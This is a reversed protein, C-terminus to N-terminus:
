ETILLFTDFVEKITALYSRGKSLPTRADILYVSGDPSKVFYRTIYIEKDAIRGAFSETFTQAQLSHDSLVNRFQIQRVLRSSTLIREAPNKHNEDKSYAVACAYFSASSCGDLKKVTILLDGQRNLFRYSDDLFLFPKWGQPVSIEFGQDTYRVFSGHKAKMSKFVTADRNLKNQWPQIRQTSTRRPYETNSYSRRTFTNRTNHQSYRTNRSSNVGARNRHGYDFAQSDVRDQTGHKQYLYNHYADRSALSGPILSAGLLALALTLLGFKKM